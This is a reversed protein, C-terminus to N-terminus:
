YMAKNINGFRDMAGVPAGNVSLDLHNSTADLPSNNMPYQAVLGSQLNVQAFAAFGTYLLAVCGLTIKKM